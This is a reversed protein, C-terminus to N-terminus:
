APPMSAITPITITAVPLFVLAYSISAQKNLRILNYARANIVILM